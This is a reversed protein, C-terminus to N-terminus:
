WGPSIATVTRIYPRSTVISENFMVWEPKNSLGCSPHLSVRQNDKVTVYGYGVKYAVQMFFGCVLAERVRQSLQPGKGASVLGIDLRIMLSKLQGRVKEAELLSNQSVYNNWSWNPDKSETHLIMNPPIVYFKGSARM